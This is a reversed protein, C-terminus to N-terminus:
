WCTLPKLLVDGLLQWTHDMLLPQLPQGPAAAATRRQVSSHTPLLFGHAKKMVLKMCKKHAARELCWALICYVTTKKEIAEMISLWQPLPQLKTPPLTCISSNDSLERDCIKNICIYKFFNFLIGAQKGAQLWVSKWLFSCLLFSGPGMAPM